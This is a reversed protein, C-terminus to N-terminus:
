TPRRGPQRYSAPSRRQSGHQYAFAHTFEAGFLFIQASYYIWLLLVLLSGAAGYGSMFASKSLYLGILFKGVTFLGATVLAGMWVDGWAIARHPLFKYIMAFLLTAITVGLLTNMISLLQTWQAIV